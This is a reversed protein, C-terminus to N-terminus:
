LPRTVVSRLATTVRGYDPGLHPDHRFIGPVLVSALRIIAYYACGFTSYELMIFSHLRYLSRVLKSNMRPWQPLTAFLAGGPDHFLHM